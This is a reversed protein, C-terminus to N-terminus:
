LGLAVFIAFLKLDIATATGHSLPFRRKNEMKEMAKNQWRRVRRFSASNCKSRSDATGWGEGRKSFFVTSPYTPVDRLM